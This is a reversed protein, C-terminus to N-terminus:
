EKSQSLIEFFKGPQDQVWEGKAWVLRSSTIKGGGGESYSFNSTTDVPQTQVSPPPAKGDKPFSWGACVWCLSCWSCNRGAVCLRGTPLSVGTQVPDTSVIGEESARAQGRPSHWTGGTWLKRSPFLIELGEPRLGFNISLSLVLVM